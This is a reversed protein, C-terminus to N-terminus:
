CWLHQSAFTKILLRMADEENSVHYVASDDSRTVIAFIGFAVIM